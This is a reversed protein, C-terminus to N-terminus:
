IDGSSLFYVNYFYISSISSNPKIDFRNEIALYLKGKESQNSHVVKLFDLHNKYPNATSLLKKRKGFITPLEFTGTNPIWELVGNIIAIDTNFKNPPLKKIDHQLLIVNKLKKEEIRKSLLRLSAYTQDISIISKCRKALPVTLAGWMCGYDVCVENGKIDLLELGAAREDSFIIDHLMPRHKLITNVSGLSDLDQILLENEKVTFNSWYGETPTNSSYINHSKSYSFENLIEKLETNM